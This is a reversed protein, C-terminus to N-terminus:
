TDHQLRGRLRDQGHRHATSHVLASPRPRPPAPAADRGTDPRRDGEVRHAADELVDRVNRRDNGADRHSREGETGHTDTRALPADGPRVLRISKEPVTMILARITEDHTMYVPSGWHFLSIKGPRFVEKSGGQALKFSGELPILLRYGYDGDGRVDRRSRQYDLAGSEFRVIHFEGVSRGLASSSFDDDHFALGVRGQWTHLWDHWRAARDAKPEDERTGFLVQRYDPDTM